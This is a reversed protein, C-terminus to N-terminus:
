RTLEKPNNEKDQREAAGRAAHRMSLLCKVEIDSMKNLEENEVLKDMAKDFLYFALWWKGNGNAKKAERICQEPNM